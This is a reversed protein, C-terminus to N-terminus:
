SVVLMLQLLEMITELIYKMSCAQLHWHRGVLGAAAMQAFRWHTIYSADHAALEIKFGLSFALSYGDGRILGRQRPSIAASPVPM